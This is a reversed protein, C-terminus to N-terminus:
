MATVVDIASRTADKPTRAAATQRDDAVAAVATIDVTRWLARLPGTATLLARGVLAALTSAGTSLLMGLPSTAIARPCPYGGMPCSLRAWSQRRVPVILRVSVMACRGTRRAVLLLFHRIVTGKRAPRIAQHISARLVPLRFGARRSGLPAWRAHSADAFAPSLNPRVCLPASAFPQNRSAIPRTGSAM